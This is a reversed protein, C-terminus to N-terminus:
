NPERIAATKKRAALRVARTLILSALWFVVGGAIATLVFRGAPPLGEGNLFTWLSEPLLPYIVAPILLYFLLNHVELTQSAPGDEVIPKLETKTVPAGNLESLSTEISMVRTAIEKLDVSIADVSSALAVTPAAQGPRYKEIKRPAALHLQTAPSGLVYFQVRGIPAGVELLVERQSVNSVSLYITGRTGPDVYTSGVTLGAAYLQGLGIVTAYVDPPLDFCEQSFLRITSGPTITIPDAHRRSERVGDKSNRYDAEGVEDSAHVEYSAYKADASRYFENRVMLTGLEEVAERIQYDSLQATEPLPREGWMSRFTSQPVPVEGWKQSPQSLM